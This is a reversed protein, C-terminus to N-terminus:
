LTADSILRAIIWIANDPPFAADQQALVAHNVPPGVALTAGTTETNNKVDDHRAVEPLPGLKANATRVVNTQDADARGVRVRGDDFTSDSSALRITM